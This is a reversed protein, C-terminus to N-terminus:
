VKKKVVKKVAPTKPEEAVPESTTEAPTEAPTEVPTAKKVVKKVAPTKQVVEEVVPESPRTDVETDSDDAYTDVKESVTATVRSPTPEHHNEDEDDEKIDQNEIVDKEEASLQIQCKGAISYTVKPKVICQVLKWTLGWGKGGIWIGGCQLVCAVSSMKPIFDSPTLDTNECPFIMNSKTDYIEVAWKNEYFPVKARISPARSLDVKKTKPDKSYKLIPFFTHKCIERTMPEGWWLDSNTVADDLIQNEFAKLKNLFDTTSQNEYDKSPFNLTISFKGDSEGKDDVFDSVGWTMMLPTSITLGRNTQKNVITISKGGSKNIKPAMYKNSATNWDCINLVVNPNM